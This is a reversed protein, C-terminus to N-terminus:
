APAYLGVATVASDSADTKGREVREVGAVKLEWMTKGDNWAKTADPWYVSHDYDFPNEGGHRKELVAKPLHTLMEQQGKKVFHIKAKTIPDLFPSIIRWFISLMAPAEYMFAIGLREAYHNQLIDLVKKSVSMPTQNKFNVGYDILLCVKSVTPPMLKMALELNWVLHRIQRDWTNTNERGPVMQLVPRGSTDFGNIYLKGTVAEPEVESPDILDPRFERRWQLTFELRKAAAEVSAGKVSRLYRVLCADDCWAVEVARM